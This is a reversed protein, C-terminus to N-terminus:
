FKFTSCEGVPFSNDSWIGDGRKNDYGPYNSKYFELEECLLLRNKKALKVIKWESFPYATKHTVHVEGNGYTLMNRASKFFGWVLEKHLEIQSQDHESYTFGAHPFNFIIRDFLKMNLLPHQSMTHANVGHIITGGLEELEKLNTTARSYKRELEEKSDLSTAVM